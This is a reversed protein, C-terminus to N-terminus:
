SALTTMILPFVTQYSGCYPLAHPIDSLCHASQSRDTRRIDWDSTSERSLTLSM